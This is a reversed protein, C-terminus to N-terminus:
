SANDLVIRTMPRLQVVAPRQAGVEDRFLPPAVYGEPTDEAERLDLRGLDFSPNAVLIEPTPPYADTRRDRHTGDARAVERARVVRYGPIGYARAHVEDEPVRPDRLITRPYPIRQVIESTVSVRPRAPGGDGEVWVDLTGRAARARLVVRDAGPNRLKLDVFPFVVMADLGMRIYASPRSHPTREVIELGALLAAAHLTSAVQCTGGGMGEALTRRRLVLSKEYGQAATREGVIRNFSFTAGPAIARGDVADAALEVNSARARHEVNTEYPTAFRALSSTSPASAGDARALRARSLWTEAFVLTTVGTLWERRALRGPTVPCGGLSTADSSQRVFRPAKPECGSSAM